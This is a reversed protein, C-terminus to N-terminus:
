QNEDGPELQALEVGSRLAEIGTAHVLHDAFAALEAKAKTTATEANKEYREMMFPASDEFLRMFQNIERRIESRRAQSVRAEDLLKGIRRNVAKMSAVKEEVEERFATRGKEAESVQPPPDDLKALTTGTRTYRLTCPVGVGHNPTTILEAFQTASMDLVVVVKDDMVHSGSVRSHSPKATSIQLQMGARPKVPTGFLNMGRSSTFRSLSVVGYSEHQEEDRDM